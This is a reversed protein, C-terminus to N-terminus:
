RRFRVGLGADIWAKEMLDLNTEGSPRAKTPFWHRRPESSRRWLALMRSLETLPAAHDDVRINIDPFDETTTIVLAASQRGRKDGGAAEGADLAAVLREAFPLDARKTFTEYTNGVVPAGALMNGAVSVDDGTLHGCWDVCNKGTWAAARGKADVAHVQRIGSGEDAALASEIATRPSLGRALGDLIAPGLYPNTMSQTAVAGVGARVFPCRAGVAFACTTIAVAFAGTAPDRAVVSWTMRSRVENVNQWGCGLLHRPM